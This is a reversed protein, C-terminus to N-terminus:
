GNVAKGEESPNKQRHHVCGFDPGTEFYGGESYSYILMDQTQKQGENEAIKDSQCTGHGLRPTFWKLEDEKWHECTKCTNM